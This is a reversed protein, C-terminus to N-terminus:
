NSWAQGGKGPFQRERVRYVGSTDIGLATDEFNFTGSSDSWEIRYLADDPSSIQFVGYSLDTLFMDFSSSVGGTVVDADLTMSYRHGAADYRTWAHLRLTDAATPYKEALFYWQVRGDRHQDRQARIFYEGSRETRWLRRQINSSNLVHYYLLVSGLTDDVWEYVQLTDDVDFTDAAWVDYPICLYEYYPKLLSNASSELRALAGRVPHSPSLRQLPEPVWFQEPSPQLEVPIMNTSGTGTDSDDCGFLVAISLAILLLLGTTRLM